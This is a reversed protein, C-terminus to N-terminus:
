EEVTILEAWMKHEFVDIEQNDAFLQVKYSLIGERSFYEDNIVEYTMQGSLKSIEFPVEIQEPVKFRIKLVGKLMKGLYEKPLKWSVYLRQGQPNLTHRFDPSNVHVSARTNQNVPVSLVSLHRSGNCGCFCPYSGSCSSLFILLLWSCIFLRQIKM